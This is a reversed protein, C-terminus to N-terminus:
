VYFLVGSVGVTDMANSAGSEVIEQKLQFNNSTMKAVLHGKPSLKVMAGPKHKIQHDPLSIIFFSFYFYIFHCLISCFLAPYLLTSYFLTAYFLISCCLISYFLMSYLLNSCFQAVHLLMSHFLVPCIIERNVMYTKCTRDASQTVVMEDLPDWAVGQVYGTHGSLILSEKEKTLVRVIEAKLNIAGAIIFESDPSWQLDYIEVLSPRLFIKDCIRSDTITCWDSPCPVSIVFVTLTFSFSDYKALFKFISYISLFCEILFNNRLYRNNSNNQFTQFWILCSPCTSYDYQLTLTWGESPMRRDRKEGRFKKYQWENWKWKVLACEGQYIIIIHDSCSALM